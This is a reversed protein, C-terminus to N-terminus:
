QEDSKKVGSGFVDDRRAARDWVVLGDSRRKFYRIRHQPIFEEDTQETKWHDLAREMAGQFRDLYGVIYDGSEMEPDWRIRNMVDASSRFKGTYEPRIAIEEERKRSKKSTGLETEGDDDDASTLDEEEDEEDGTEDDGFTYEGWERNDLKLDGLEAQKALSTSMWSSKSDFYKEDGRIQGEFKQLVTQLSGFAIKLEEKSMSQGDPTKWQDLGILYYGQYDKDGDASAKDVFRGPWVRAHINPLRRNLDVLLMVCRSELWGVYQSGKALSVGWFHVNIKVYSKYGKLFDSPGKHLQHFSQEQDGLFNSWTTGETSLLKDARQFEESITRVSPLSATHATNLAPAHYGLIAMPERATRVYRLRKHFFPDFVLQTKWDFNAYHHFFTSIVTPLSVSGVNRSLIKCVRSLLIAIHIGGLYGFRASYIGRQKAWAKVLYLANRFVAFDPITHRLYYLDRVPKLKALTQTPLTFVPSDSPLKMARPWTEAILTSPCYQLDMKVDQVELELMTGSLANVRRLVKIGRSLAKRLRQTALAFFTRSSIPGICLCDIDSATTWVGLGYSGVPVLVFKPKSRGQFSPANPEVELLTDQLLKFAQEQKAVNAESPFVEHDALCKRLEAADSLSAPAVKIKVPVTLKTLDESSERSSTSTFDLTCRIGWHDSAYTADETWEDNGGGGKPQEECPLGKRQGFMNFGNVSLFDTGKVLIRDYRQPRNNSGSGVISSALENNRPDFTAGQEGEFAEAVDHQGEDSQTSILNELLAVTWSDSLGSEAFMTELDGLYKATQSSIAKKELAADITYASTTINFDGALIWPNQPHNKSLYKLISQLEIKKAAVSGDTLGSTLHVAALITPVFTDRDQKGIDNFQLVVSGKHRRRFSIWDWTFPHKSLVVVNLHSPLPDVDAQDPPGNTIFPYEKQIRGDRLLYCLFDDTVEELVLVDSLAPRELLSRLIVPYRAQSPPYLFEALVNYSAVRLSELNSLREPSPGRWPQWTKDKSSFCLPPRSLPGRKEVDESHEGHSTEQKKIEYFGSPDTVQTFSFDKLSITGWLKMQSSVKGDVQTRERKLICLERVDWEVAPMLSAKQLLFEHPASKRDESQGLTLHMRSNRDTQGLAELIAKRLGLLKSTRAENSDHIFITNDHQHPFYDAAGLSVPLTGDGADLRQVTLRSSILELARPLSDVKVFPYILNVHPPWKEYAKDYLKRLREVSAWLHKPPIICLSTDNSGIATSNSQALAGSNAM